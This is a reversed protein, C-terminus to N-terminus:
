LIADQHTQLYHIVGYQVGYVCAAAFIGAIVDDMMVGVGRPLKKDAWSIPWPKLIDFFRFFIFAVAWSFPNFMAPLLAIWMGAVEDIVIESPDDERGFASMYQNSITIGVLTIAVACVALLPMKGASYLFYAFPLAALSGVTGSIKPFMGSLFWTALWGYPNKIVALLRPKPTIAHASTTMTFSM